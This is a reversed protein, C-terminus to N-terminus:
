PGPLGWNGSNHRARAGIDAAASGYYSAHHLMPAQLMDHHHHHHAIASEDDFMSTDTMRYHAKVRALNARKKGENWHHIPPPAGWYRHQAPFHGLPPGNGKREPATRFYAMKRSRRGKGM